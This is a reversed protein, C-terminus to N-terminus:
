VSEDEEKFTIKAGGVTGPMELILKENDKIREIEDTLINEVLQNLTIDQEHAIKMLSYWENDSLDMPVSVKRGQSISFDPIKSYVADAIDKIYELILEETDVHTYYVDDWANNPDVGKSECELYNARKYLPNIYKFVCDTNPRDLHIEYVEFTKTDYIGSCFNDGNIDVFEIFRSNPGYCDWLHEDGGSIRASVANILDILLM